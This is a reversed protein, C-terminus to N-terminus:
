PIVMRLPTCWPSQKRGRLAAFRGWVVTGSPFDLIRTKGSGETALWNVPAAPEMAIQASFQKRGWSDEVVMRSKTAKAKGPKFKIADPPTEALNQPKPPDPREMGIELVDTPDTGNTQVLGRVQILKTDVNGRSDSVGQRVPPLTDEIKKLAGRKAVHDAYAADLENIATQLIPTAKVLKSTKSADLIKTVLADLEPETMSVALKTELLRPRRVTPM